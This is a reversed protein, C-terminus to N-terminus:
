TAQLLMDRAEALLEKKATLSLSLPLQALGIIRRMVEIGTFAQLLRPDYAPTYLATAKELLTSACGAMKLHALLVAMDFCGMSGAFCFEPDIIKVATAKVLWSGPYYDGHQLCTGTALYTEKLMAAALKISEDNKYPAAIAQLGPQVADLSFGNDASFPFEFIHLANLQRMEENVFGPLVAPELTLGHLTNLYGVLAAIHAHTLYAPNQYVKTADPMDGADQLCLIFHVPDFGILGPMFAQLAAQAAVFEYFRHEVVLRQRPAAVQPYKEVWPRAQKVIITRQGTDIRLVYNMNGSGPVTITQVEEGAQLWGQAQLYVTLHATNAEKLIM